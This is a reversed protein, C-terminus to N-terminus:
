YNFTAEEANFDRTLERFKPRQEHDVVIMAKLVTKLAECEVERDILEYMNKQLNSSNANWASLDNKTVMRLFTLGLSYVDSKNYNVRKNNRSHIQLDRLEPSLYTMTGAFDMNKDTITIGYSNRKFKKSVDFDAIKYVENCNNDTTIFINDPKLDRHSINKDNLECMAPILQKAAILTQNERYNKDLNAREWDEIRQKLTEQALEMVLNYRLCNEHTDWFSGYLKLFNKSHMMIAMYESQNELKPDKTKTYNSKVAVLIEQNNITVLCKHVELHKDRNKFLKIRDIKRIQAWSKIPLNAVLDLAESFHM